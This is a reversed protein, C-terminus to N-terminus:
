IKKGFYPSFHSEADLTKEYYNETIEKNRNPSFTIMAKYSSGKIRNLAESYPIQNSKAKQIHNWHEAVTTPVYKNEGNELTITSGYWKMPFITNIIEQEIACVIQEAHDANKVPFSNNNFISQNTVTTRSDNIISIEKSTVQTKNEDIEQRKSKLQNVLTQIIENTNTIENTNIITVGLPFEIGELRNKTHEMLLDESQKYLYVFHFMSSAEEISYREIIKNQMGIFHSCGVRGFIPRNESLYADVFNADREKMCEPTIAVEMDEQEYVISILKELDIARYQINNEKIWTFFEKWKKNIQGLTRFVMESEQLQLLTIEPPYPIENRLAKLFEDHLIKLTEIQSDCLLIRAQADMIMGKPIEDYFCEYGLDHLQSVMDTLVIPTTLDLHNEGFILKPLSTTEKRQM